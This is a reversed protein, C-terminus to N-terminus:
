PPNSYMYISPQKKGFEPRVLNKECNSTEGVPFTLEEGPQFQSGYFGNPGSKTCWVETTNAYKDQVCRCYDDRGDGDQDKMYWTNKFGPDLGKNSVYNRDSEGSTGALACALVLEKSGGVLRCFDNAAGQGQVDAWGRFNHARGMHEIDYRRPKITFTRRVVFSPMKLCTFRDSTQQCAAFAILSILVIRFM